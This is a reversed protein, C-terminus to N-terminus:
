KKKLLNKKQETKQKGFLKPFDKEFQKQVKENSTDYHRCMLENLRIVEGKNPHLKLMETQIYKEFSLFKKKLYDYEFEEM